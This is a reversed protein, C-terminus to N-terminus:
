RLEEYRSVALNYIMKGREWNPFTIEAIYNKIMGRSMGTVRILEDMGMDSRLKYLLDKIPTDGIQHRCEPVSLKNNM